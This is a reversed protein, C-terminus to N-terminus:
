ATLHKYVLANWGHFRLQPFRFRLLEVRQDGDTLLEYAHDHHSPFFPTTVTHRSFHKQYTFAHEIGTERAITELAGLLEVKRHPQKQEDISTIFLLKRGLYLEARVGDCFRTGLSYTRAEPNTLYLLITPEEGGVFLRSKESAIRAEFVTAATQEIEEPSL